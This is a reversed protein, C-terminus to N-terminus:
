WDVFVKLAHAGYVNRIQKALMEFEKETRKRAAVIAYPFLPGSSPQDLNMRAHIDPPFLPRLLRGILPLINLIDLILNVRGSILRPSSIINSNLPV